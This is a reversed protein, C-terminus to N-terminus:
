PNAYSRRAPAAQTPAGSRNDPATAAYGVMRYAIGVLLMLTMGYIPAGFSHQTMGMFLLTLLNARGIYRWHDLNKDVSKSDVSFRKWLSIFIVALSLIGLLGLEAFIHLISNHATFDSASVLAASGVPYYVYPVGTFIRGVDNYRGFGIGVVPSMVGERFARGWLIGRIALNGDGELNLLSSVAFANEVEFNGGGTAALSFNEVVASITDGSAADTFREFQSQFLVSMVLFGLLSLAILSIVQKGRGDLLSTLFVAFGFALLSTRSNTGLLAVLSIALFFLDSTSRSKVYHFYHFILLATCFTGAAHNTSFFELDFLRPGQVLILSVPALFRMVNRIASPYRDLKKPFLEIVFILPWFYLFM